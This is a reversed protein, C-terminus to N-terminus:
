PDNYMISGNWGKGIIHNKLIVIAGIPVEGNKKAYFAYKLAKKMWKQDIYSIM